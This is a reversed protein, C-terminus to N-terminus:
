SDVDRLTERRRLRRPLGAGRVQVCLLGSLARADLTPNPLPRLAAHERAGDARM